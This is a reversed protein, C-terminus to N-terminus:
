VGSPTALCDTCGEALLASTQGDIQGVGRYSWSRKPVNCLSLSQLMLLDSIGGQDPPCAIVELFSIWERSVRVGYIEGPM